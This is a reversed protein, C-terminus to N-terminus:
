FYSIGEEEMLREPALAISTYTIKTFNLGGVTKETQEVTLEVEREQLDEVKRRGARQGRM